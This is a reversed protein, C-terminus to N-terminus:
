PTFGEGMWYSVRLVGRVRVECNDFDSGARSEVLQSAAFCANVPDSYTGLLVSKGTEPDTDELVWSETNDLDEAEAAALLMDLIERARTHPPIENM